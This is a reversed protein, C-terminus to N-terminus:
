HMVDRIGQYGAMTTSAAQPEKALNWLRKKKKSFVM